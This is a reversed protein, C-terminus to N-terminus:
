DYFRAFSWMVDVCSVHEPSERPSLIDKYWLCVMSVHIAYIVEIHPGTDRHAGCM